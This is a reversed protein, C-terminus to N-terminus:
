STYWVSEGALIRTILDPFAKKRIPKAIMGNFGAQQLQRVDDSMVSATVAVVYKDQYAAEERLMKLMDYGDHPAIHVDLLFVAPVFPLAKIRGMFDQSDEFITIHHGLMTVLLLSMVERSMPDNEVYLFKESTM